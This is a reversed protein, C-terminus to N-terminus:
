RLAQSKLGGLLTRLFFEENFGETFTQLSFMGESLDEM